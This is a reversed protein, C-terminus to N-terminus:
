SNSQADEAEKAKRAAERAEAEAKIRAVKDWRTERPHLNVKSVVSDISPKISTYEVSDVFRDFFIAQHICRLVAEYMYSIEENQHYYGIHHDRLEKRACEIVKDRYKLLRDWLVRNALARANDHPAASIADALRGDIEPQFLATILAVLEIEREHHFKSDTHAFLWGDGTANEYIRTAGDIDVREMRPDVPFAHKSYGAESLDLFRSFIHVTAPVVKWAGDDKSVALSINEVDTSASQVIFPKLEEYNGVERPLIVDKRNPDLTGVFVKKEETNDTM